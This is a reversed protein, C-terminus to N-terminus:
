ASRRLASVGLLAWGLMLLTGGVPAASPLRLGTLALAYVAGCFLLAGLAFAAGALHAPLGGRAAWLGTFLLALAYWGQMQIADRVMQQGAADLSSLAHAALAAMAVAAVGHLSGFGIWLRQLTM